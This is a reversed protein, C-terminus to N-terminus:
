SLQNGLFSAPKYHGALLLDVRSKGASFPDPNMLDRYNILKVAPSIALFTLPSTIPLLAIVIVPKEFASKALQPSKVKASFSYKKERASLLWALAM